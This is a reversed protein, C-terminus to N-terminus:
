PHHVSGSNVLLFSTERDVDKKVKGLSRGGTELEYRFNTDIGLRITRWQSSLDGRISDTEIACETGDAGQTGDGFAILRRV